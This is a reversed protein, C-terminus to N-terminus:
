MAWSAARLDDNWDHRAPRLRMMEPRAAIMQEAMLDGVPDADYGCYLAPFREILMGFWPADPRAGATSVARYFPHFVHCSIADIASECLVVAAADEPDPGVAFFGADKRSGPALGRWAREGTGRLEAGVVDRDPRHMVFVANARADAYLDGSSVLAAIITVPIARKGALYAEVRALQAPAPAPLCLSLVPPAESRTMTAHGPAFRQALWDVAAAFSGGQLHIVLDIAGGGGGGRSWNMFKPGAVSVLGVPTHWKRRDHRDPEGGCLPLIEQLPIARLREWELKSAASV